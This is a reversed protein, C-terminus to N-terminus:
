HRPSTSRASSPSAPRRTPRVRHTASRSTLTMSSSAASLPPSLNAASDVFSDRRTKRDEPTDKDPAALGVAEAMDRVINIGESVVEPGIGDGGMIGIRHAM